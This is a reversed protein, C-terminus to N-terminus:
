TGFRSSLAAIEDLMTKLNRAVRQQLKAATEPYEELIRRFQTRNLRLLESDENAIAGTLRATEAILALEGLMFGPEVSRVVERRGDRRRYLDVRGSVVVFGCDAPAGEEYLERGAPLKLRETGFALLRLQDRSFGEFLGVRSLTRIDDELAM